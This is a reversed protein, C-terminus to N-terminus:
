FTVVERSYPKFQDDTCEEPRKDGSQSRSDWRKRMIRPQVISGGPERYLYSVEVVDGIEISLDKGILSSSCLKVVNADAPGEPSYFGQIVEEFARAM